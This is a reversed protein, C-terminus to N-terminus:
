YLCAESMTGINQHCLVHMKYEQELALNSKYTKTKDKEEIKHRSIYTQSKMKTVSQYTINLLIM